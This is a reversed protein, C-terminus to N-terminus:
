AGKGLLALQAGALRHIAAHFGSLHAQIEPISIDSTMHLRSKAFPSAASGECNLFACRYGASQAFDIERDAVSEADGFPYALAWIPKQVVGELLNRSQTIEEVALQSPAQSLMPHTLTHSGIEMGAASLQLLEPLTLLGFRRLRSASGMFNGVWDETLGFEMRADELLAARETALHGSWEKIVTWWLDRPSVNAVAADHLTCKLWALSAPAPSLLMMLYLQEYWLMRRERQISDATVFFLLTLSEEQLVPLMDTLNNLLGDDCTLLLAREPLSANGQLFDRFTAPHIINYNAKFFRLQRRLSAVSVLSGDLHPDLAQYGEPLVGHYTIVSVEGDKAPRQFIGARSLCPYVVRKLLPSVLKM